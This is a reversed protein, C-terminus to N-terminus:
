SADSTDEFDAAVKFLEAFDPDHETLLYFTDRDGILIVKLDCPVAEPELTLQGSWGQAEAPPEIRIEGNRLARKLGEWAYPQSFMREADLILFGGSARHLAGARVLNFNTLVNGMHVVHEIRGILNGFGPNTERVVPAGQTRAHDVLLKVQYRHFRASDEEAAEEEDEGPSLWHAGSDLLDKRIADFFVLVQDLDAYRERLGRMLLDVTPALVEREARDIAEQVEKRWGPFDDLLDALKDSWEQVKAEIAEREAEPLEEFAEPSMAEGDRTPAFVFGEATRLFSLADEACAEGLERLAGEERAKYADQLGDVRKTHTDSDLAADIAPGLERIFTQMDTRLTTGRGAPLSLLRPRVPDDFNHLYCLDPPVTGKAALEEILRFAVAHRGTGHEGLVFVHYGPHHMSLGFRLAEEARGQGLSATFDPLGSIAATTDCEITDPNCV